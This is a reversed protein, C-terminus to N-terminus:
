LPVAEAEAQERVDDRLLELTTADVQRGLLDAVDAAFGALPLLGRRVADFDVLLDVDSRETEEGRAASGFVRVNRIGRGRGAERIEAQHSRVLALLAGGAPPAPRLTAELTAGTARVLKDLTRVSPSRRGSEYAAVAPQSTSAARALDAQTMGARRRAERILRAADVRRIYRYRDILSILDAAM